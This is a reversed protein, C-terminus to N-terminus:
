MRLLLGSASRGTAQAIAGAYIQVQRLYTELSEAPDLDTKFDVVTWGQDDEFALDVVGEVLQGDAAISVPVERRLGGHRAAARIRDFLPHALTASVLAAASAREVGTAALLRGQQEVVATVQDASADLPVIALVAHVLAGFRPGAAVVGSPRPVQETRVPIGPAPVDAQAARARATIVRRGPRSGQEVARERGNRWTYYRELGADISGPAGDKVILEERRLGYNPLRGLDLSAPDWWTVEYPEGGDPPTLRHIGPRVSSFPVTAERDVMSDSGFREAWLERRAERCRDAEPYIAGNLPSVWGREFPADGVAPVVLLDRARTAAVYAVRVGEAEDRRVEIDQHDLLDAPQWGALSVACAGKAGDVWRSATNRSLDATIDALIVIPFELGKAKHATMLRVGDSGEELIPAEAARTSDAEEQLGDVFGRFSLGGSAEYQRALEAIYQVNALAQEGSPRLAFIAHARSADLLRTVTEAVPRHNRRLHLDRLLNLAEVVPKLEDPPDALPRFPHIRSAQARYALLTEDGIAFLAGRLTGFVSLEDDPWEIAALATRMTEVEEREHFSKGGVLLHPIGRSELAQVYPRTVDEMYSGSQNWARRDFRRFLLCVHRAQIPIREGGRDRETVTWGSQTILWDVFAGVADPLSAEIAPKTVQDRAGIPRPVPLVVVGPQAPPDPRVPSLAVYSAQVSESDGTMLPAFAANVMRQITPVSRFSSTLCVPIAGHRVLQERVQQYIGVDARRFRYISQKPDGVVFLKGPTPAVARWDRCAPDSASLLLLIEAQLPDTDQFEDVFLHTFRQQFAARVDDHDRVLDRARVLLDLFDLAGLRAKAERYADIAGALEDRLLAALDADADRKFAELLAVLRAHAQIVQERPVGKRYPATKRGTRINRFRYNCLDVLRAELRDYDRPRVREALTLEAYVRRAQATSEFFPDKPDASSATLDHFAELERVLADVRGRQDFGERRWRGPFDRWEVLTYAALELRGTPGDEEDFATRRLARRIGEPPDELQRQLWDHFVESFLRRAQPETLMVFQPDVGGEVPRERLLDACFTHITSVHAQELSALARDLHERSAADAAARREELKTRLRLKLEGAAKETFTVAVLREVTTRGSALINVIRDVLVTTKGTGAAAEVALTEDLATRIRARAEADILAQSM